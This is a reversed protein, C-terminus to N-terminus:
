SGETQFLWIRSDDCSRRRDRFPGHPLEKRLRRSGMVLAINREEGGRDDTHGEVVFNCNALGESSLARGIEEMQRVTEQRNLEASWEDFLIDSFTMRDKVLTHDEFGMLKGCGSDTSGIAVHTLIEESTRLGNKDHSKILKIKELGALARPHTPKIELAKKYADESKEYLGM